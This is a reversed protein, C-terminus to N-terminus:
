YVQLSANLFKLIMRLTLVETHLKSAQQCSICCTNRFSRIFQLLVRKQALETDRYTLTLGSLIVHYSLVYRGITDELILTWGENPASQGPSINVLMVNNRMM